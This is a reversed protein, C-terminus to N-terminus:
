YEYLEDAQFVFWTWVADRREFLDGNTRMDILRLGVSEALRLVFAPAYNQFVGPPDGDREGRLTVAVFGGEVTIARLITLGIAAAGALAAGGAFARGLVM